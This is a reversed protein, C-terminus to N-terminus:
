NPWPTAPNGQVCIALQAPTSSPSCTATNNGTNYYASGVSVTPRPNYDAPPPDIETGTAYGSPYDTPTIGLNQCGYATASAVTSISNLTVGFHPLTTVVTENITPAPLTPINGLLRDNDFAELLDGMNADNDAPGLYTQPLPNASTSGNFGAPYNFLGGMTAGANTAALENPLSALPTLNFMEDIFKIVSSHESYQHSVTHAAAFPSLVILPIRPGGTEPQGDPGFTRFQEPQHDYFGDSEDYTIIIASQAWISKGNADTANAIANVSDAVLAESIQSDSYSGHDDNGAFDQVVTPNATDAPSMGDNNFYGGRVYFVGGAAPLNHSSLDTYFQGLSHLNGAAVPNDGIYGFYQPGNHHVIYSAHEVQGDPGNFNGEDTKAPQGDFPEPGYGQQYWGWAVVPNKVAIKAIDQQVDVLDLAPNEDSATISAINHGMFSLPLSAFTLPFPSTASGSCCSVATGATGTKGSANIFSGDDPGYPPKIASTDNTSGPYPHGDTLMPLYPGSTNAESPHKVWQTDGVQGAIMAIANPSSPGTATQHMNDFLVGVDAYNWLFPITDCDIHALAAEGKQKQQLTPYTSLTPLVPSAPTGAYALGEQDLAYGDNRPNWNADVHFDNLYGSHSHDVSFHSEPFLQVTVGPVTAGSANVSPASVITRPALFPSVTGFTGDPQAIAQTYSSFATAPQAYPDGPNAGPYTAVLGNAGPYTGFYHDFSRNEQFLVFVYKVQKRLLAIKAATTLPTQGSPLAHFLPAGATGTATAETLVPETSPAPIVQALAATFAMQNAMAAICLWATGKKFISRKM